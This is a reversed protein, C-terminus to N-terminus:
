NEKPPHGNGVSGSRGPNATSATFSETRLAELQQKGQPSPVLRAWGDRISREPFRRAPAGALLTASALLTVSAVQTAGRDPIERDRAKPSRGVEAEWLTPIVPTLWQVRGRIHKLDYINTLIYLYRSKKSLDLVPNGCENVCDNLLYKDNVQKVSPAEIHLVYYCNGLTGGRKPAKMRTNPPMHSTCWIVNPSHAQLGLMKPPRPPCIVFDPPPSWGSCCPSVGDRSFICFNAPCSPVHRYDCSSLLSLWSFRKFGPPLPQLSSLDQWQVGAQALTLSWREGEEVLTIGTIKVSQSALAPPDNSSLLKLDAQAVHHFGAETTGAVRSASAPSNSSGLLHLNCHASITGSCELRTVSCSESTLLKLGAQGVHHFGTEVLCLIVPCPPAHRYDWSSPLSLCSFRKFRPRPPQLSDLYCWEVGAQAVLAFSWTWACHSVGTIGASQSSSTSPDSSGLLHLSCHTWIVGSGSCELKPLLTLGEPLTIARIWSFIDREM